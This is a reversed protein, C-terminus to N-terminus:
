IANERQNMAHRHGEGLVNISVGLLLEQSAADTEHVGPDNMGFLLRGKLM